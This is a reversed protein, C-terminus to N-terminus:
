RYKLNNGVGDRIANGIEGNDVPPFEIDLFMIESEPFPLPFEDPIPFNIGEPWLKLWEEPLEFKDFSKFEVVMQTLNYIDVFKNYVDDNIDVEGLDVNIIHKGSSYIAIM